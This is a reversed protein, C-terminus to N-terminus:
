SIVYKNSSATLFARIKEEEGLTDTKQKFIRKITNM